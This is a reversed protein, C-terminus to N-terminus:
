VGEQDNVSKLEEEREIKRLKSSLVFTYILFVIMTAAGIGIFAVLLFNTQTKESTKSENLLPRNIDTEAAIVTFDFVESRVLNGSSNKVTAYATHKEGTLPKNMEYIWDGNADTKTTVVIPDSFIYITVTSDPLGKGSFKIKGGYTQNDETQTDQKIEALQVSNTDTKIFAVQEPPPPLFQTQISNLKAFCSDAKKMEEGTPQQGKNIAVIREEGINEALCNKIEDPIKYSQGQEFPQYSVGFCGNIAENLEHPVSEKGTKVQEYLKGTLTKKLCDEIVKPIQQNNTFYNVSISSVKTYCRAFKIHEEYTPQRNQVYIEKFAAEGIAEKLCAENEIPTRNTALTDTDSSKTEGWCQKVKEGLQKINEEEQPNTTM